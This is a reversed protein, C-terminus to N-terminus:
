QAYDGRRPASGGAGACPADPAVSTIEAAARRDVEYNNKGNLLVDYLRASSPRGIDVGQVRRCSADDTTMAAGRSSTMLPMRKHPM